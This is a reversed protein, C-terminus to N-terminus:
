AAALAPEREPELKLIERRLWILPPLGFIGFSCDALTWFWPIGRIPGCIAALILVGLCCSMSWEVIWINRAPDRWVGWFAGAIAIHAFALWDTGYGMFPYAVNTERYGNLVYQLWAALEPWAGNLAADSGFLPELFELQSQIPFATVGSLILAVVFFAVLARIRSM